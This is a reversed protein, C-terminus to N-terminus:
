KQEKEFAVLSVAPADAVAVPIDIYSPYTASRQIQWTVAGDAPRPLFMDKDAGALAVRLRHGKEIRVSTSFLSFAVNTVMGPTLPQADARLFSHRPGVTQYPLGQLSIKRNDTSLVGESLYRVVGDPAVDELYAIFLADDRDVAVYLNIEASGTVTMSEELPMSTYTLLKRDETDRRDYVVDGGGFNTHWRTKLGNSALRDVVYIDAAEAHRPSEPSLLQEEAFYLRRTTMEKPPWVQTTRWAGSGFTYYTVQKAPAPESGEAKLYSDFVKRILNFQEKPNPDVPADLARFPDTDHEGGHSFPGILVHQPNSFTMFQSLVGDATAADLWGAHIVLPVGSSEIQEKLGFPAIDAITTSGDGYRDDLYQVKAAARGVDANAAHELVAQALQKRRRDGDVPKVGPIMWRTFWCKVGSVEALGCVDDRDMKGVSAGWNDAYKNRAGGPLILGLLPNFDAYLPAAVKLAPRQNVAALIATNGEYSVGHTGVRGNSWPQSAIWDIVEGYDRVEERSWEVPRHGFSAGSGRADVAVYAYGAENFWRTTSGEIGAGDDLRLGILARRLFGVEPARWYRTMNLVTPYRRGADFDKPLWVDAAIRVGDQMVLYHAQNRREGPAVSEEGPIRTLLGSGVLVLVALVLVALGILPIRCLIRQTV